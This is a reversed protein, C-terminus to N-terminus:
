SWIFLTEVKNSSFEIEICKNLLNMGFEPYWLSDKVKLHGGKTSLRLKNNGPLGIIVDTSNFREIDILPHFYFMAFAYKFKGEISDTITLHNEKIYWVRRHIINAFLNRYGNHSCGVEISDTFNSICLDFTSARKGVRFNAWVDSSNQNNISVTNHAGTSRQFKRDIEREYTSVGSNVLARKGFLSLEFSLTDAHAHGPLYDCGIKGVDLILIADDQKLRIYGSEKLFTMNHNLPGIDINGLMTAYKALESYSPAISLAADNFFSINGDPHLMTRMWTLMRAIKNWLINIVTNIGFVDIHKDYTKFLNILDLFDELVIAHYMPSLEVHGGDSLIQINIEKSLINLGRRLWKISRSGEFFLGAFILAKANALLHNGMLHFEVRKYLYDAQCVLSTLAVSGLSMGSLTYKIWNTIRLSTPYPEWGIGSGPPNDKIWQGILEIHLNSNSVSDQTLLYNFYHLNYLWLKSLKPNNWDSQEVIEHEKNLFRFKKSGILSPPAYIPTHWSSSKNRLSLPKIKNIKPRYVNKFIRYYIQKIQLHKVTQYFRILNM